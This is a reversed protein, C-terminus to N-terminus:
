LSFRVVEGAKMDLRKEFQGLLDFGPGPKVTVTLDKDTPNNVMVIRRGPRADELELFVEPQDCVLLNGIFVKRNGLETDVQLMGQGDLVTFRRLENEVTRQERVSYRNAVKSFKWVPVLLDNKAKYLIGAPWRENLGEVVVPLDLPLAARSITGAFGGGNAQLRLAFKTDLVKGQECTVQYAPQGRLGLKAYVDEIFSVDPKGGVTDWVALYRYRVPQGKTLKKEPVGVNASLYYREGNWVAEYGMGPQLPVIARSGGLPAIQAVYEIGDLAASRNKLRSGLKYCESKGEVRSVYMTDADLLWPVRYCPVNGRPLDLDSLMQFDGEVLYVATGEARPTFMTTRVRGQTVTQPEARDPRDTLNWNASSIPGYHHEIVDHKVYGFRGTITLQQDVAPRETDPLGLYPFANFSGANQEIYSELGRVPHYNVAKFKGSTYTNLNDTCRIMGVEQNSTDRVGSIAKGGANDIIVAIYHRNRDQYGEFDGAWTKQGSLLVRRRLEAGDYLAIEKLGKDASVDLHIRYRDNGKIALDSTGFNFVRFDEIIPGGSVFSPRGFVYGGQYMPVNGSIASIVDELEWWRVYTQLPTAAAAQVDAPSKVVNAVVPFVDFGNRQLRQYVGESNRVLNGSEYQHIAMGKFNGQLWPPEADGPLMVLPLFQFGRFVVNNIELAGPRKKSFWEQKPWHVQQGFVMWSNGSEDEYTFGPFAQFQPGSVKLCASKLAELKGEDLKALPDTFAAFHYGAAKAATLMAEPIAAGDSLNSHLGILGKYCNPQSKGALKVNDWDVEVFGPEPDGAQAPPPTYGGFTAQSPEGLWRLLNVLLPRADSPKEQRSGEMIIGGGWFDHYGDIIFASPVTPWLCMRGKEIDKVAVLPPESKYTGPKKELQSTSGAVGLPTSYSWASPSGKVLPQWGTSLQLPHTWFSWMHDTPYLLGRVGKTTPHPQVNATYGLASIGMTPITLSKDNERVQEHLVQAGFPKLFRNMEEFDRELAWMGYETNGTLMLGGGDAVYRALVQEQARVEEELAAHKEIIPFDLMVIVNFQRLYEPTMVTSFSEAAWVIGEAALKSQLAEDPLYSRKAFINEQGPAKTSVHGHLLLVSLPKDAAYSTTILGMLLALILLNRM